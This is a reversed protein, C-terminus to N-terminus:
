LGVRLRLHLRDHFRDTAAAPWRGAASELHQFGRGSHGRLHDCARGADLQARIDPIGRAASRVSQAAGRRKGPDRRDEVSPSAETDRFNYAILSGDPSLAPERAFTRTLRMPEGGALPMKWLTWDTTSNYVISQGDPTIRPKTEGEGNTLQQPNGGDSDMRWIHQAGGRISTFVIVRGDPSVSPDRNLGVTTLQRPNTGDSNARWINATGSASSTYVVSAM